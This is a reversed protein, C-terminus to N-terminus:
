LTFHGVTQSMQEITMTRLRSRLAEVEFAYGDDASEYLKGEEAPIIEGLNTATGVFLREYEGLPYLFKPIGFQWCSLDLVLKYGDVCHLILIDHVTKDPRM